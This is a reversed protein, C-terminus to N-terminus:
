LNKPFQTSGNPTGKKSEMVDPVLLQTSFWRRLGRSNGLRMGIPLTMMAFFRFFLCVPAILLEATGVHNSKETFMPLIISSRNM